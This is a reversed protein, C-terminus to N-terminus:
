PGSRSREGIGVTTQLLADGFRSWFHTNVAAPVGGRGLTDVAPFDVAITMGDPRILRTWIIM